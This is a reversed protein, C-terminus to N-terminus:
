DMEKGLPSIQDLLERVRSKSYGMRTEFEPLSLGNCVENLAQKLIHVEDSDFSILAEKTSRKIIDM